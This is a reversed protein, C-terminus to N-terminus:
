ICPVKMHVCFKFKIINLLVILKTTFKYIHTYHTKPYTYSSNMHSWTHEHTYLGSTLRLHRRDCEIKTKSLSSNMLKALCIEYFEVQRQEGLASIGPMHVKSM